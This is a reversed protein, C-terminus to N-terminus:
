AGEPDDEGAEDGDGTEVGSRNTIFMEQKKHHAIVMGDCLLEAEQATTLNYSGMRTTPVGEEDHSYLLVLAGEAGYRRTLECAAHSLPTPTVVSLEPPKNGVLTLKPRKDDSM